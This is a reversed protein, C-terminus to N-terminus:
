TWIYESHYQLNEFYACPNITSIQKTIKGIDDEFQEAMDKLTSTFIDLSPKNDERLKSDENDM